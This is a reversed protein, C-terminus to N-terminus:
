AAPRYARPRVGAAPAAAARPRAVLVTQYGLLGPAAWTALALLRNTVVMLPNKPDLGFALELPMVTARQETVEYGAGELLQRATKRTFFRLHTRDLIGRPRYEFRGFLLGLRVTVNAVNPVSVIVRGHPKCYRKCDELMREPSRLHELVDQLLVLDFARDGLAREAGALGGDLDASVYLDMAGARAASELLDIGVVRNGNRAVLAAFHGEGCGVDLIEHGTGALRRFYDHSSFRSEKLPYHPALEAYEPAASRGSLTARYRRVATFVARAYRFGTVPGLGSGPHAPVPVERLRLGQHRLKIILQTEFHADHAAHSFDLGALAHLSYARYGSHFETLSTGLFYNAYRTLVRNGLSKDLPVGGRDPAVRSGFVADAEGSVIPAYLDALVEPAHRGDGRLVVVVDFGRDAFYRYGRMQDGGSGLHKAGRVVTLKEAGFIARFGDAQGTAADDFVAVEEINEWVDKPVRKLAASLAAATGYAVVLVGIRKGECDALAPPRVVALPTRAPKERRLARTAVLLGLAAVAAAAAFYAIPEM